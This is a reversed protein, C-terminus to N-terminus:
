RIVDNSVIRAQWGRSVAISHMVRHGDVSSGIGARTGRSGVSGRRRRGRCVLPTMRDLRASNIASLAQVGSVSLRGLAEEVSAVTGVSTDGEAVGWSVAGEA